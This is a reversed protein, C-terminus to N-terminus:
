FKSLCWMTSSTDGRTVAKKRKGEEEEDYTPPCSINAERRQTESFVLCGSVIM